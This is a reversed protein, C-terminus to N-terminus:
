RHHKDDYDDKKYSKGGRNKHRNENEVEREHKRRREADRSM